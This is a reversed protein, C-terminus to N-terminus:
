LKRMIFNKKPKNKINKDFYEYVKPSIESVEDIGELIKYFPRKGNSVQELTILYNIYEIMSKKKRVAMSKIAQHTTEPVFIAKYKKIKM